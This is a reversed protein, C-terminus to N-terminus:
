QLPSTDQTTSDCPYGLQICHRADRALLEDLHLIHHLCSDFDREHNALFYESLEEPSPNLLQTHLHCYTEGVKVLNRILKSQIDTIEALDNLNSSKEMQQVAMLAPHISPSTVHLTVELHWPDEANSWIPIMHHGTLTLKMLPTRASARLATRSSMSSSHSQSRNQLTLWHTNTATQALMMVADVSLPPLAQRSLWHNLTTAKGTGFTCM